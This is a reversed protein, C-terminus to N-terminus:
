AIVDFILVTRFESLNNEVRHWTSHKFSYLENNRVTKSEFPHGNDGRMQFTSSRGEEEPVDIVWMNRIEDLNSYGVDTHWDLSANPSLFNIASSTIKPGFSLMLSSLKPLIKLNYPNPHGDQTIVALHWGRSKLDSDSADIISSITVPFGEKKVRISEEQQSTFDKVQIEDWNSITEDRIEQHKDFLVSFEPHTDIINLFLNSM